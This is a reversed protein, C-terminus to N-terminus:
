RTYDPTGAYQAEASPRWSKGTSGVLILCRCNERRRDHYDRGSLPFDLLIRTAQM